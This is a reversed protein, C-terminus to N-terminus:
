FGCISKMRLTACLSQQLLRPTASSGGNREKWLEWSILMLMSSMVKRSHGRVQSVGIWWEDVSGMTSWDRPKVDPLGLWDVIACWVRVSFRCHCLLHTSTEQVQKCLPCLGCNPWGRRVLRDATWVSNQIVLWVFLKCKPPAWARWVAAYMPSITHGEFQAKYASSTSFM